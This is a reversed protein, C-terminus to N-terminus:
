HCLCGKGYFVHCLRLPMLCHGLFGQRAVASLSQAGAICWLAFDSMTGQWKTGCTLSVLDCAVLVCLCMMCVCVCVACRLLVACNYLCVDVLVGFNGPISTGGGALHLAPVHSPMFTLCLIAAWRGLSRQLMGMECPCMSSSM